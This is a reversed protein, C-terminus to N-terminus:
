YELLMIKVQKGIWSKPLVVMGGNGQPKVAKIMTEFSETSELVPDPIVEVPFEHLGEDDQMRVWCVNGVEAPENGFHGNNYFVKVESKRMQQM